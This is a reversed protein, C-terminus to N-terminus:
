SPRSSGRRTEMPHESIDKAFPDSPSTTAAPSVGLSTRKSDNRGSGAVTDPLQDDFPSYPAAVVNERGRNSTGYATNGPWRQQQEHMQDLPAGTIHYKDWNVHPMRVVNQPGPIKPFPPKVDQLQEPNQSDHDISANSDNASKIANNSRHVEDEDSEDDDVDDDDDDNYDEVQEFTSTRDKIEKLKGAVLEHRFHQPDALALKRIKDLQKIDNQARQRQLQLSSIAARLALADTADDGSFPLNPPQPIFETPKINSKPQKGAPQQQAQLHSQPQPQPQPQLQPQSQAQPQLQVQQPQVKQQQQQQQTQQQTQQPPRNQQVIQPPRAAEVVGDYQPMLQRNQPQPAVSGQQRQLQVQYQHQYASQATTSNAATAPPPRIIGSGNGQYTAPLAPQAKPTIPSYAPAVPSALRQPISQQQYLSNSGANFAPSTSLDPPHSPSVASHANIKLPM